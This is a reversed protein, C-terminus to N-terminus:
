DHAQRRTLVHLDAMRDFLVKEHRDRQASAVRTHRAEAVRTEGRARVLGDHATDYGAKAELEESRRAELVKWAEGEIARALEMVAPDLVGELLAARQRQISDVAGAQEEAIARARDLAQASRALDAAARSEGLERWRLLATLARMPTESM